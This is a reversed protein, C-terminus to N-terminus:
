SCSSCIGILESLHTKPVFGAKKAIRDEHKCLDTDVCEEVTGCDECSMMVHHGKEGQLSCLIFSGTSLHRHALGINEFAELIRYVTVLSISGDNITIKAHIEKHTLPTNTALMAQLVLRRSQTIRLNYQGLLKNTSQNMRYVKNCIIELHLYKAIIFM